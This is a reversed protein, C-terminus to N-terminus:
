DYFKRPIFSLPPMDTFASPGREQSYCVSSRPACGRAFYFSTVGSLHKLQSGDLSLFRSCRAPNYFNNPDV